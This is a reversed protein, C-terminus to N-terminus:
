PMSAEESLRIKKASPEKDSPISPESTCQLPSSDDVSKLSGVWNYLEGEVYHPNLHLEAYKYYMEDTLSDMGSNANVFHRWEPLQYLEQEHLKVQNLEKELQDLECQLVRAKTKSLDYLQETLLPELKHERKLIKKCLLMKLHQDERFKETIQKKSKPLQAIIKELEKMKKYALQRKIFDSFRQSTKLRYYHNLDFEINTVTIVADFSSKQNSLLQIFYNRTGHYEMLCTEIILKTQGKFLKSNKLTRSNFFDNIQICLNSIKLLDTTAMKKLAQKCDESLQHNSEDTLSSLHSECELRYPEHSTTPQLQDDTTLLKLLEESVYSKKGTVALPDYKALYTTATDVTSAQEPLIHRDTPLDISQTNTAEETDYYEEDDSDSSSDSLLLDTDFDIHPKKVLTALKNKIDVKWQADIPNDDLYITANHIKILSDPLKEINNDVLDLMKLNKLDFINDPITKIKCSRLVLKKLWWITHIVPPINVFFYGSINLTKIRELYCVDIFDVCFGRDKILHQDNAELAWEYLALRDKKPIETTNIKLNTVKRFASKSAKYRHHLQNEESSEDTEQTAEQSSQPMCTPRNIEM